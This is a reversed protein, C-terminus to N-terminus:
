HPNELEALNEFSALEKPNLGFKNINSNGDRFLLRFFYFPILQYWGSKGMDHCRKVSQAIMFYLVPIFLLWFLSSFKDENVQFIVTMISSFLYCIFYGLIALLVSLGFETRRIRGHFSFPNKFM